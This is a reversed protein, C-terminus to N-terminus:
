DIRYFVLDSGDELRDSFRGRDVFLSELGRLAGTSGRHGQVERFLSARSAPDLAENSGKECRWARVAEDLLGSTAEEDIRDIRDM